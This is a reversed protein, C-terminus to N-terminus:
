IGGRMPTVTVTRTKGSRAVRLDVPRTTVEALAQALGMADETDTWDGRALAVATIVDGPQLGARAAPSNPLVSAIATGTERLGIGLFGRAVPPPGPKRSLMASAFQSMQEMEQLGKTSPAPRSGLIQRLSPPPPPTYALKTWVMYPRALDIEMRYRALVSYGLVGDIKAGALGMANMGKLQAPSEVRARVGRLTIGGELDLRDVTGSGNQNRQVGARVASDTAVFLDPAGTDVIFHFPGKGNLRARVLLHQTDTLRYPVKYATGAAAKPPTPSQASSSPGVGALTVTLLGL